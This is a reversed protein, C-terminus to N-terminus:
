PRCGNEIGEWFKSQKYDDMHKLQQMEAIQRIRNKVMQPLAKMADAYSVWESKKIKGITAKVNGGKSMVQQLQGISSFAIILATNGTIQKIRNLGYISQSDLVLGVIEQCIKQGM